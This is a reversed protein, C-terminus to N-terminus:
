KKIEYLDNIFTNIIEIYADMASIDKRTAGGMIQNQRSCEALVKRESWKIITLSLKDM